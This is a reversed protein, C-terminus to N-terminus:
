LSGNDSFSTEQDTILTIRINYLYEHVYQATKMITKNKHVTITKTLLWNVTGSQLLM